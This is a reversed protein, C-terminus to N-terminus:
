ELSSTSDQHNLTDTHFAIVFVTVNESNLVLVNLSVVELANGPVSLPHDSNTSDWFFFFFSEHDQCCSIEWDLRSM